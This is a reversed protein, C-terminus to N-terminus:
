DRSRPRPRRDRHRDCAKVCVQLPQARRQGDGPWSWTDGGSAHRRLACVRVATEACEDLAARPGDAGTGISGFPAAGISSTGQDIHPPGSADPRRTGPTPARLMFQGNDLGRRLNTTMSRVCGLPMRCTTAPLVAPLEAHLLSLVGSVGVRACTVPGSRNMRRRRAPASQLAGLSRSYRPPTSPLPGLGDAPVRQDGRTAGRRGWGPRAPSLV